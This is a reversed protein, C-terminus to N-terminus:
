RVLEFRTRTLRLDVADALRQMPRRLVDDDTLESAAVRLEKMLSLLRQDRQDTQESPM